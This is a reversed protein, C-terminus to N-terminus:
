FCPGGFILKQDSSLESECTAATRKWGKHVIKGLMKGEQVVHAGTYSRERHRRRVEQVYLM